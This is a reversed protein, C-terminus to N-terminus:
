KKKLMHQRFIELFMEMVQEPLPYVGATNQKALLQMLLLANDSSQFEQVSLMLLQVLEQVLPADLILGSTRLDDWITYWDSNAPNAM